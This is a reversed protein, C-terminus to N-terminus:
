ERQRCCFSLALFIGLVAPSPEPVLEGEVVFRRGGLDPMGLDSLNFWGEGFQWLIYPPDGIDIGNRVAAGFATAELQGSGFVVAYWGPNLPTVLNGFVNASPEPFTLVTSGRVDASEFDSSDPFDFENTLSVIAGFFTHDRFDGGFHGGIQSTVVPVDLHFRVGVFNSESVNSGPVTQDFFLQATSIGTSGSKASEYILAAYAPRLGGILILSFVSVGIWHRM